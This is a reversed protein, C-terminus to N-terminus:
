IRSADHIIRALEAGIELEIVVDSKTGIVQGTPAVFVPGPLMHWGRKSVMVIELEPDAAKLFSIIEKEGDYFTRM